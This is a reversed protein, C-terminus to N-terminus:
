KALLNELDQSLGGGKIRLKRSDTRQGFDLYLHGATDPIFQAIREPWEILCCAEYFAEEVGLAFIQDPHELRYLDMHWVEFGAKAMYPQVLTFTPSPIDDADRCLQHIIARALTSKGAGLPGHLCLIQGADLLGALRRGLKQLDALDAIEHQIQEPM